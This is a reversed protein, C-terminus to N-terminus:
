FMLVAVFQDEVGAAATAGHAAAQARRLLFQWGGRWGSEASGALYRGVAGMASRVGLRGDGSEAPRDIYRAEIWVRCLGTAPGDVLSGVANRLLVELFDPARFFRAIESQRVPSSFCGLRLLCGAQGGLRWSM